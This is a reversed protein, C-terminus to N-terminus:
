CRARRRALAAMMAVTVVFGRADRPEAGPAVTCCGAESDAVAEDEAWSGEIAEDGPGPWPLPESMKGGDPESAGAEEAEAPEEVDLGADGAGGDEEPEEIAAETCEDPSGEPMPQCADACSIKEVKSESCRWMQSLDTTCTWDPAVDACECSGGIMEMYQCWQWDYGPDWHLSAGGYDPSKICGRLSLTCAPVCQGITNPNPVQYHGIVHSRDVIIDHRSLIGKVLEVSARYLEIDFTKAAFGVHEIGISRNNWCSNGAHWGMYSEPIFQGIRSGDEDIIYHASKGKSNQLTTVSSHWGGETSHLIISDIERNRNPNCKDACDTPFWIAGPHDPTSLPKVAPPTLTLEIPLEPHPRIVVVEGDRAPFEGGHRLVRFVEAAYDQASPKDRYGSLKELAKAWSRYDEGSAGFERGLEALVLIGADTGLDTHIQLELEGVGLLESGRKLSDFAGRRLQLIGAIAMRDSPVRRAPLTLGREVVAIALVLDGPIDQAEAAKRVYEALPGQPPEISLSSDPASCSSVLLAVLILATGIRM